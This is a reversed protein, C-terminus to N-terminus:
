ILKLIIAGDIGPDEMENRKKMNRYWFEPEMEEKKQAHCMDYGDWKIIWINPSSYLDDLQENHPRSYEGTVEEKTPGSINSLSRQKAM